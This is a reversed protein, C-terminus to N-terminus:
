RLLSGAIKVVVSVFNVFVIICGLMAFLPQILGPNLKFGPGVTAWIPIEVLTVLLAWGYGYTEGIIAPAVICFQFLLVIWGLTLLSGFFERLGSWDYGTKKGSKKTM